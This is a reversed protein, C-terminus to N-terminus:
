EQTIRIVRTRVRETKPIRVTLVNNKFYAEVHTTDVATPLVISRAFPGWFCEELYLEAGNLLERKNMERRGKITIVDDTISITIQEASTGAVPAIIFIENDTQYVDVSLQGEPEQATPTNFNQVQIPTGIPNLESPEFPHRSMTSDHREINLKLKGIGIPKM